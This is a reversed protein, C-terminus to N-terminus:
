QSEGWKKKRRGGPGTGDNTHTPPGGGQLRDLLSSPPAPQIPQRSDSEAAVKAAAGKISFGVTPTQPRAEAAPLSYIGSNPRRTINPRSGNTLSTGLRSLLSPADTDGEMVDKRKKPPRPSEDPTLNHKSTSPIPGTRGPPPETTPDHDRPRAKSSIVMRRAPTTNTLPRDPLSPHGNDKSRIPQLTGM